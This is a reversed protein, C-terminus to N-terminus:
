NISTFLVPKKHLPFAVAEWPSSLASTVINSPGPECERVTVTVRDPMEIVTEIGISYGGSNKRGQFVAAVAHTSFNVEPLSPLPQVNGNIRSWWKKWEKENSVLM